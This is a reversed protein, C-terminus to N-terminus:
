EMRDALNQIGSAFVYVYDMINSKNLETDRDDCKGLGVGIWQYVYMSVGVCVNKTERKSPRDGTSRTV